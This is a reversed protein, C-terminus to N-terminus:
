STGTGCGSRYNEHKVFPAIRHCKEQRAKFAWQSATRHSGTLIVYGAFVLGSDAHTHGLRSGLPM